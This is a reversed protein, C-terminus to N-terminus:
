SCRSTRTRFNKMRRTPNCIPVGIFLVMRASRIRFLERRCFGACLKALMAPAAANVAWSLEREIECRDVLNYAATNIVMQPNIADLQQQMQAPATLDFDRHSVFILDCSKSQGAHLAHALLGQSGTVLIRTPKKVETNKV